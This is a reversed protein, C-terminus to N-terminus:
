DFYFLLWLDKFWYWRLTDAGQSIDEHLEEIRPPQQGLDGRWAFGVFKFSRNSITTGPEPTKYEHLRARSTGEKWEWIGLIKRRILMKSALPLNEINTMSATAIFQKDKISTPLLNLMAPDHKLVSFRESRLQLDNYAFVEPLINRPTRTVTPIEATKLIVGSQQDLAASNNSFKVKQPRKPHLHQPSDSGANITTELRSPPEGPEKGSQAKMTGRFETTAPLATISCPVKPHLRRPTDSSTSHTKELNKPPIPPKKASEALKRPRKPHYVRPAGSKSCPVAKKDPSAKMPKSSTCTHTKEVDSGLEQVDSDSKSCPSTKTQQPRTRITKALSTEPDQLNPLPKKTERVVDEVRSVDVVSILHRMVKFSRSRLTGHSQNMLQSSSKPLITEKSDEPKEKAKALKLSPLQVHSPLITTVRTELTELRTRLITLEERLVTVELMDSM